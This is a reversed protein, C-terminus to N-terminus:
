TSSLYRSLSASADTVSYVSCCSRSAVCSGKEVTLASQAKQKEGNRGKRDCNEGTCVQMCMHILKVESLLFDTLKTLM